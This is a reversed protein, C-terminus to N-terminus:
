CRGYWGELGNCGDTGLCLAAPVISGASTSTLDVLSTGWSGTVQGGDSGTFAPQGALPNTNGGAVSALNANYGNFTYDDPDVLQWPGGNVSISLNGGDYDTETAVWHDFAMRLATTSTPAAISPSTLYMVRSVDGIDGTCEGVGTEDVAFFAQGTRGSPLSGRRVWEYNTPSYVDTHTVTWGSAVEFTDTYVTVASGTGAACLSPTSPDLLPQFNCQATPDIRLETASIVKTVELCDTTTFVQGSLVTTSISTSLAPLDTGAAVLDNCSATLADAHDAFDTTPTQYIDQARWYL